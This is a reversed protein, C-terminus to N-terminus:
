LLISKENKYSVRGLSDGKISKVFRCQTYIIDLKINNLFKKKTSSEALWRGIKIIEKDTINESKLMLIVAHSSPYDKLHVWVHWPKAQRLLDINAKANKGAVVIIGSDLMLSRKAIGALSSDKKSSQKKNLNIKLFKKFFGKKFASEYSKEGNLLLQPIKEVKCKKFMSLNIDENLNQLFIDKTLTNLIDIEKKLDKQRNKTQKLKYTLKKNRSFQDDMNWAWSKKEKVQLIQDKNLMSLDNTTQLKIAIDKCEKAALNRDNIDKENKLLARKTKKIKNSIFLIFTNQKKINKKNFSIKDKKSLWEKKLELLSRETETETKAKTEAKTKTETEIETKFTKTIKTDAKKIKYWHLSKNDYSAKINVFHPIMNFEIFFSEFKFLLIRESKLTLTISTLKKGILHRKSFLGVPSKFINKELDIKDPFYFCFPEVKNIDFFLYQKKLDSSWLELLFQNGQYFINQVKVGKLIQFNKLLKNVELLSLAKM